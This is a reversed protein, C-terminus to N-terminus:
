YIAPPEDMPALKGAAIVQYYKVYDGYQTM